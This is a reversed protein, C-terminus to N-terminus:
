RGQPATRPIETARPPLNQSQLCERVFADRQASAETTYDPFKRFSEKSCGDMSRWRQTSSTAPESAAIAAPALSVTSLAVLM